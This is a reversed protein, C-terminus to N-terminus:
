GTCELTPLHGGRAAMACTVENWDCGEGVMWQLTKLHGGRAARSCATHNWPCPPDLGRLWKLAELHGGGAAEATYKCGFDVQSEPGAWDLMWAITEIHGGHAAAACLKHLCIDTGPTDSSMKEYEELTMQEIVQRMWRLVELDGRIAAVQFASSDLSCGKAHMWQINEMKGGRVTDTM